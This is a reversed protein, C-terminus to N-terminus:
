AHEGVSGLGFVPFFDLIVLFLGLFQDLSIVLEGLLDGGQQYAEVLFDKVGGDGFDLFAFEDDLFVGTGGDEYSGRGEDEDDDENDQNDAIDVFAVTGTAGGLFGLPLGLFDHFAAM